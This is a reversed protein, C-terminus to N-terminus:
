KVVIEWTIRGDMEQYVYNEKKTLLTRAHLGSEKQMEMM